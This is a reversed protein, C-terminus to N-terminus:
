MDLDPNILKINTGSKSQSISNWLIMQLCGGASRCCLMINVDVPKAQVLSMFKFYQTLPSDKCNQKLSVSLTSTFPLGQFFNRNIDGGSSAVLEFFVLILYELM